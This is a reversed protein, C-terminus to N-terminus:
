LGRGDISAGRRHVDGRRNWWIHTQSFVLSTLLSGITIAGWLLVPPVNNLGPDIKLIFHKSLDWFAVNFISMLVIGWLSVSIFLSIGFFWICRWIFIQIANLIPDRTM